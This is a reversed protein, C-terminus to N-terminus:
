IVTEVVENIFVAMEPHGTNSDVSTVTNTYRAWVNVLNGVGGLIATGLNLAAGGTAGPLGGSTLALKIETKPHHKALLTWVVTGDAVTSGIASTPFTPQSVGSTGTTTCVYCWTNGGVPQVLAGASYVTVTVWEPLTDTPTLTIQDVGPNSFAQIQNASKNSGFYLHIDQPNDSLDTAHTLQELGSFPVSLGADTWLKFSLDSLSM